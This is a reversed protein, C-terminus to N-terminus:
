SKRKGYPLKRLDNMLDEVYTNGELREYSHFLRETVDLKYRGIYGKDTADDHIIVILTKIINRVAEKLIDISDIFGKVEKVLNRVSVGIWTLLGGFIMTILISSMNDWVWQPNFWEM